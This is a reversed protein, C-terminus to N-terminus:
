YHDEYDEDDSDVSEIEEVAHTLSAALIDSNNWRYGDAQKRYSAVYEKLPMGACHGHPMVTLLKKKRVTMAIEYLEKMVYLEDIGDHNKLNPIKGTAITYTDELGSGETAMRYEFKSLQLMERIDNIPVKIDYKQLMLLDQQVGFGYLTVPDGEKLDFLALSHYFREKSFRTQGRYRYLKHSRYSHASIPKHSGYSHCMTQATTISIAKMQIIENNKIYSNDLGTFEFDVLVVHNKEKKM